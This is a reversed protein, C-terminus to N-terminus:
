QFHIIFLTQHILLSAPHILPNALQKQNHTKDGFQITIRPIATTGERYVIM